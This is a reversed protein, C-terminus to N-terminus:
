SVNNRGILAAGIANGVECNDPFHVTTGLRKAVNPLLHIAAAGIGLLPIKLSFDVGLVPHNNRTAVFNTLNNGWYRGIVYDIIMNEIMDETKTLVDKCFEEASQDRLKALAEAGAMAKEKDGFDLYGLVHLADTPTFGIEVLLQKRSLDDLINQLPIGSLGTKQRLKAPTLCNNERLLELVENNRKSIINSDALQIAKAQEEIGIWSDVPENLTAKALPVVRNPGVQLSGDKLIVVHSDGGIGETFMEVAEVHTKWNGITCGDEALVPNGAELMTIDTTTGGIDIVLSDENTFQSGFFATCAPGSAVTVGANAVAFNKDVPVGNGGIIMVPCTLQHEEMASSVGSIFEQMVPMLKAHLGATAAREQM